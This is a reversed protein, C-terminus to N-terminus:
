HRPKSRLNNIDNGQSVIIDKHRAFFVDELDKSLPAAGCAVSRFSKIDYNDVIPSKAFLLIIPPVM